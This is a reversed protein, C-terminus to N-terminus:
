FSSLDDFRAAKAGPCQHLSPLLLALTSAFDEPISFEFSNMYRNLKERSFLLRINECFNLKIVFFFFSPIIFDSASHKSLNPGIHIYIQGYTM